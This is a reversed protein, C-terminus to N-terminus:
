IVINIIKKPVYIIRKPKRAGIFNKVKERKMVLKKIEEENVGDDVEVNDRVKGNIQIVLTFKDEIILKSDYTPWKQLHISTNKGLFNKWLEEALHPAFPALIKVFAEKVEGDIAENEVENLFIMLASVATNFNYSEIDDEVKKIARNLARRIEEGSGAENKKQFLKFVRELFRSIGLIGRPNWAVTAGHPGLFLMYM